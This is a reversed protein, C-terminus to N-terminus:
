VSRTVNFVLGVAEFVSRAVSFLVSVSLIWVSSSISLSSTIAQSDAVALRVGQILGGFAVSDVFILYWAAVGQM